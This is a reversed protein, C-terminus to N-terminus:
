ALLRLLGTARSLSMAYREGDPDPTDAWHVDLHKYDPDEGTISVQVVRDAQDRVATSISKGEALQSFLVLPSGCVKAVARLDALIEVAASVGTAQNKGPRLSQLDNVLVLGPQGHQEVWAAAAELLSASTPNAADLVCLPLEAAVGLDVADGEPTLNKALRALVVERPTVPSFYLVEEGLHAAYHAALNLSLCTKGVAPPAAVLVLGAPMGDFAPGLPRQSSGAHASM